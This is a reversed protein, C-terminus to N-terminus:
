YTSDQALARPSCVTQEYLRRTAALDVVVATGGAVSGSGPVLAVRVRESATGTPSQEAHVSVQDRIFGGREANGHEDPWDAADGTKQVSDQCPLPWVCAYAPAHRRVGEV